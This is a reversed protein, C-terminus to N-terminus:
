WRSYTFDSPRPQFSPQVAVKDPVRVCVPVLGFRGCACLYHSGDHVRIGKSSSQRAGANELGEDSTQMNTIDARM